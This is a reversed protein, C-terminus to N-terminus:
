TGHELRAEALHQAVIEIAEAIKAPELSPYGLLMVRDWRKFPRLMFAPGDMLSYVGVRKALLARQLIHAPPVANSLYWTLHMGGEIGAIDAEGFHRKLEALIRNRRELYILRIRRLQKDFAGSTLFDALVTQELWSHGHDMLDKIARAQPVLSPPVVVYGLRLGAGLSKSFTALYIVREDHDLAALAMLPSGQYRFDGDYDDEVIFSGTQRAWELLRVRTELSMTPGLPFQHSPTVYALRAGERPLDRADLGEENVDCGILSAGYSVFLHAASAYTPNEMVVASGPKLLMRAVLNLGQQVGAVVVIQEFTCSIGRSIRVHHAIAKRLEPIGQPDGYETLGRAAGNLRQEVIRKWARHPFLTRDPRGVRFDLKLHNRWPDFLGANRLPEGHAPEPTREVSSLTAHQRKRANLYTRPLISCVRTGGKGMTEIFGEQALVQYALMVTNRAVGLQASLTRTSPLRDGPQLLGSGILTTIQRAIQQQLHEEASLRVAIPLQM